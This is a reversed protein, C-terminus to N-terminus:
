AEQPETSGTAIATSIADTAETIILRRAVVFGVVTSFFRGIAFLILGMGALMWPQWSAGILNTAWFATEFRDSFVDPGALGAFVEGLRRHIFIGLLIVVPLTASIAILAGVALPIFLNWPALSM